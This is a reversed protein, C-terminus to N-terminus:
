KTVDLSDSMKQWGTITSWKMLGAACKERTAWALAPGFSPDPECTQFRPLTQLSSSDKFGRKRAGEPCNPSRM